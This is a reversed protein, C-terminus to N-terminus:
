QAVGAAATLDEHRGRRRDRNVPVPVTKGATTKWRPLSSTAFSGYHGQELMQIIFQEAIRIDTVKHVFLDQPTQM